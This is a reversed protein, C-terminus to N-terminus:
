GEGTRFTWQEVNQVIANDNVWQRDVEPLSQLDEHWRNSCIIMQVRYLRKSYAHINTASTGLTCPANSAQFEVKYKAIMKPHAEDFLIAKHHPRLQRFDPDIVGACNLELLAGIPYQCRISQSKRTKPPGTAVYFNFRHKNLDEYQLLFEEKWSPPMFVLDLNEQILAEVRLRDREEQIEEQKANVWLLNDIYAKARDKALLHEDIAKELTLKNQSHYKTVWAPNVQFSAHPRYNGWTEVSGPKPLYVYYYAQHVVTASKRRDVVGRVLNMTYGQVFTKAQMTIPVEHKRSLQLHVHLKVNGALWNQPCLETTALWHLDPIRVRLEAVWDTAQKKIAQYEPEDKISNAALEMTAYRGPGYKADWDMHHPFYTGQITVATMTLERSSPPGGPQGVHTASGPRYAGRKPVGTTSLLQVYNALERKRTLNAMRQYFQTRMMSNAAKIKDEDSLLGFSKGQAWRPPSRKFWRTLVAQAGQYPRTGALVAADDEYM